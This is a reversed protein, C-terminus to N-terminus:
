LWDEGPMRTRCEEITKLIRERQKVEDFGKTAPTEAQLKTIRVDLKKIASTYRTEAITNNAIAASERLPEKEAKLAELKEIRSTFEAM